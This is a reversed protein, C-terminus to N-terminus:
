IDPYPNGLWFNDTPFDEISVTANMNIRAQEYSVTAVNPVIVPKSRDVTIQSMGHHEMDEAEAVALEMAPIDARPWLRQLAVNNLFGQKYSGELM